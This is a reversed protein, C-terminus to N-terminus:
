VGRIVLIAVSGTPGARVDKAVAHLGANAAGILDATARGGETNAFKWSFLLTAPSDISMLCGHNLYPTRSENVFSFESRQHAMPM